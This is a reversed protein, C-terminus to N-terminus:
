RGICERVKNYDVWDCEFSNLGVYGLQRLCDIYYECQRATCKVYRIDNETKVAIVFIPYYVKDLYVEKNM